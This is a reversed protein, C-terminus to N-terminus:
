GEADEAPLVEKEWAGGVESRRAMFGLPLEAIENLTPDREFPHSIEVLRAEEIGDHESGCLFQWDGEDDHVAMSVPKESNFIHICVIVGIEM